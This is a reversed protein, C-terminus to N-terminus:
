FVFAHISAAGWGCLFPSLQVKSLSQRTASRLKQTSEATNLNAAGVGRRMQAFAHQESASQAAVSDQKAAPEPAREHKGRVSASLRLELPAGWRM